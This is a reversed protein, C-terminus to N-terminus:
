EMVGIDCHFYMYHLFIRILRRDTRLAEEDSSFVFDYLYEIIEEFANFDTRKILVKSQIDEVTNDYFVQMKKNKPDKFFAEIKKFDNMSKKFSSNFYDRGMKNLENKEAIPIRDNRHKIEQLEAGDFEIQSFTTILEKLDDEYFELPLLLKKLNHKQAVSPYDKLWKQIREEGLVVNIIDLSESIFDEIKPDQVGTLKRNTFLLYYDLKSDEELKKISKVENSLINKFDPDSCSAGVKVTHKAQIIFRGDWPSTKSPFDNAKGTFKADRGGDKGPSFIITATGLIEECISAVLGEFEADSLENLPYRM